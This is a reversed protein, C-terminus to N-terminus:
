PSSKSSRTNADISSGRESRASAPLCAILEELSVSRSGISTSTFTRSPLHRKISRMLRGRFGNAVFARQAASGFASEGEESFFLASRLVTPDSAEPDLLAPAFLRRPAAAALLSNSTGFDIAFINPREQM